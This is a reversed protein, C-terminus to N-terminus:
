SVWDAAWPNLQDSRRRIQIVHDQGDFPDWHPSDKGWKVDLIMQADGDRWFTKSPIPHDDNIGDVFHGMAGDRIMRRLWYGEFDDLVIDRTNDLLEYNSHKPDCPANPEDADAVNCNVVIMRDRYEPRFSAPTGALHYTRQRVPMTLRLRMNVHNDRKTGRNEATKDPLRITLSTRPHDEDSPPVLPPSPFEDPM